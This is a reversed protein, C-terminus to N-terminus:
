KLHTVTTSQAVTTPKRSVPTEGTRTLATEARDENRMPSVGMVRMASVAM